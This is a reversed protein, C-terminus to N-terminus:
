TLVKGQYEDATAYDIVHSQIFESMFDSIMEKIKEKCIAKYHNWTYLICAKEEETIVISVRRV